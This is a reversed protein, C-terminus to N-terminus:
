YVFRPKMPTSLIRKCFCRGRMPTPTEAKKFSPKCDPGNDECEVCKYVDRYYDIIYIQESVINLESRVFEKGVKVMNADCVDCIPNEIECLVDKHPLNETMETKIRKKRREHAEVLVKETPETSSAASEQEAENFLSLQEAGDVYKLQESSKGFMKKRGKVLMENLNSIQLNQKEVTSKLEANEAQLAKIYAVAEQPLNNIDIESM